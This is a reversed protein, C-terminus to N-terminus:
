SRAGTGDGMIEMGILSGCLLNHFILFPLFHTMLPTVLRRLVPLPPRASASSHRRLFFSSFPHGHLAAHLRNAETQVAPHRELYRVPKPKRPRRTRKRGPEQSNVPGAGLVRGGNGM